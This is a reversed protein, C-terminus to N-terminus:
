YILTRFNCGGRRLGSLAGSSEARSMPYDNRRYGNKTACLRNWGIVDSLDPALTGKNVDNV